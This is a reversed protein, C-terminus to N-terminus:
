GTAPFRFDILAGDKKRISPFVEGPFIQKGDKDVAIMVYIPEELAIESIQELCCGNDNKNIMDEFMAKAQEMTIMKGGRNKICQEILLSPELNDIRAIMTAGLLANTFYQECNISGNQPDVFRVEGNVREAIFVHGESASWLVRVEAM